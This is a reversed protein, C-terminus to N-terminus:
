YEEHGLRQRGVLSEFAELDLALLNMDFSVTADSSLSAILQSPKSDEVDSRFLEGKIAASSEIQRLVSLRQLMRTLWSESEHATVQLERLDPSDMQQALSDLVHVSLPWPQINKKGSSRAIEVLYFGLALEFQLCISSAIANHAREPDRFDALDGVGALERCNTLHRDVKRRAQASM